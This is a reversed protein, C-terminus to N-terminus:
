AVYVDLIIRECCKVLVIMLQSKM